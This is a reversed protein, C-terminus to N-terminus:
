ALDIKAWLWALRYGHIASIHNAALSAKRRAISTLGGFSQFCAIRTLLLDRREYGFNNCESV